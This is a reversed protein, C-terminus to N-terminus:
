KSMERLKDQEQQRFLFEKFAAEQERKRKGIYDLLKGLPCPKIEKRALMHYLLFGCALADPLARHAGDIKIGRRSCAAELRHRGKGSQFRDADRVVVLPDLWQAFDPDFTLCENGTISHHIFGRDFDASYAVPVAQDCLRLLDPALMALPPADAVHADTIGHIATASEPIPRGPNVFSSFRGVPLGGEFRVAAIDCVGDAPDLGCTEVDLVVLGHKTWCTNMDIIV